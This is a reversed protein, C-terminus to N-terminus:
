EAFRMDRLTEAMERDFPLEKDYLRSKKDRLKSTKTSYDAPGKNVGEILGDDFEMVKERKVDAASKAKPAAHASVASALAALISLGALVGLFSKSM